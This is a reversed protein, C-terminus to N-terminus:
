IPIQRRAAAGLKARRNAFYRCVPVLERLSAVRYIPIHKDPYSLVVSSVCLRVTMDDQALAALRLIKATIYGYIYGYIRLDKSKM